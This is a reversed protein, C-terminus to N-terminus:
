RCQVRRIVPLATQGTRARVLRAQSPPQYLTLVLALRGAGGTPLWNGPRADRALSVQFTGDPNAAVSGANYAYRDAANPILMGRESYVAISWWSVDPLPGEVAYECSSHLRQGGSDVRAEFTQASAANTPLAGIRAFRARTYPDADPRGAAIWNVWPGASETTVPSPQTTM